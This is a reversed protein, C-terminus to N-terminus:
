TFLAQALELPLLYLGVLRIIAVSLSLHRHIFIVSINLSRKLLRKFDSNQKRHSVGKNSLFVTSADISNERMIMEVDKGSAMDEYRTSELEIAEMGNQLARQYNGVPNSM